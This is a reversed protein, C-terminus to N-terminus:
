LKCSLPCTFTHVLKHIIAYFQSEAQHTQGTQFVAADIDLLGGTHCVGKQRGAASIKIGSINVFARFFGGTLCQYLPMGPVAIIQSCFEIGSFAEALIGFFCLCLQTGTQFPGARTIKIEVQQVGQALFIHVSIVAESEPIENLFDLLFAQDAMVAEREM